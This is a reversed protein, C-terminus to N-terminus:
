PNYYDLHRFEFIERLMKVRQTAEPNAPDLELVHLFASLAEGMRGQAGLRRGRVLWGSVTSPQWLKHAYIYEEVGRAVMTGVDGGALLTRRVDTSSFDLLPAGGQSPYGERPYFYFRYDAVLREYEKWQPLQREIDAGALVAFEVGQNERQLHRLTDITYSPRPLAFEVDSVRVPLGALQEAVAIRTMALRDDEPALDDRLPNRPSVVMWVEDALGQRAGWGAVATHGNHPPNFSGFYLLVRSM